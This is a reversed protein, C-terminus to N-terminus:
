SVKVFKEEGKGSVVLGKKNPNDWRVRISPAALFISIILPYIINM